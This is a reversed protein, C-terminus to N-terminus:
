VAVEKMLNNCVISAKSESLNNLLILIHEFQESKYYLMNCCNVSLNEVNSQTPNPSEYFFFSSKRCKRLETVWDQLFELSHQFALINKVFKDTFRLIKRLSM